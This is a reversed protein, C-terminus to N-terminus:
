GRYGNARMARLQRQARAKAGRGTYCKGRKGYKVGRKGNRTCAKFPM